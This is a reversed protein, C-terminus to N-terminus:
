RFFPSWNEHVYGASENEPLGYGYNTRQNCSTTSSLGRLISRIGLLGRRVSGRRATWNVGVEVYGSWRLWRFESGLCDFRWNSTDLLRVFASERNRRFQERVDWSLGFEFLVRESACVDLLSRGFRKTHFEDSYCPIGDSLPIAFVYRCISLVLALSRCLFRRNSTVVSRDSYSFITDGGIRDGTLGSNSVQRTYEVAPLKGYQGRPCEDPQVGLTVFM